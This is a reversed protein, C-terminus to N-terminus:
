TIQEDMEIYGCENCQRTQVLLTHGGIKSDLTKYISWKGFSHFHIGFLKNLLKAFM